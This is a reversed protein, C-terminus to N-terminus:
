RLRLQNEKGSTQNGGSGLSRFNWKSFDKPHGCLRGGVWFYLTIVGDKYPNVGIVWIAMKPICSGRGSSTHLIHQNFGPPYSREDSGEPFATSSVFSHNLIRSRPGCHNFSSPINRPNNGFCPSGSSKKGFKEFKSGSIRAFVELRDVPQWHMILDKLLITIIITGSSCPQVAHELADENM